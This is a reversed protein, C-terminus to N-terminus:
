QGQEKWIERVKTQWDAFALGSLAEVIARDGEANEDWAGILNLTLTESIPSPTITVVPKIEAKKFCDQLPESVSNRTLSGAVSNKQQVEQVIKLWVKEVDDTSTAGILSQILSIAVGSVLDMDFGILHFCKLFEWLRQNDPRFGGNARVIHNRIVKLKNRQSDSVTRSQEMLQIFDDADKAGRALELLRCVNESDIKSIPGTVLAIADRKPNFHTPKNFDRWAAGIVDPMQANKTTFCISHKIQVLLRCQDGSDDNRAIVVADDTEYGQHRKQLGVEAIPWRYALCPCAAKSLMLAVFAAQVHSEFKFGGGGTNFASSLQKAQNLSM